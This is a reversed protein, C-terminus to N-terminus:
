FTDLIIMKGDKNAKVRQTSIKHSKLLIGLTSYQKKLRINDLSSIDCLIDNQEERTLIKNFLSHISLYEIIIDRNKSNSVSSSDKASKDLFINDINFIESLFQCPNKSYNEYDQHCRNIYYYRAYYLEFKGLIINFQLLPYKSSIYEIFHHYIKYYYKRDFKNLEKKNKDGDEVFKIKEKTLELPIYTIARNFFNKNNDTLYPTEIGTAKYLLISAYININLLEFSGLYNYEQEYLAIDQKNYHTNTNNIIYLTDINGRYRGSFQAIDIKNHAECFMAKISSDKINIGEKIRSTALIINKDEPLVENEVIYNTLSSMNELSSKLNSSIKTKLQKKCREESIIIGISNAEIKFDKTLKSFYSHCIDTVSNAMYIMKNEVSAQSLLNFAKEKSIIKVSKPKVCKCEETFDFHKFNNFHEFFPLVDKTTASLCIIKVGLSNYYNILCYLYYATDTYSADSIISHVEDIVIYRFGLETLQQLKDPNQFFRKLSHHTIVYNYGYNKCAIFEDSFDVDKLMQEKILKRSTIFLIKEFGRLEKTLSEQVWTNKGAGVGATILVLNNDKNRNMEYDYEDKFETRGLIEEKHEEIVESLYKNGM